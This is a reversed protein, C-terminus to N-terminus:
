PQEPGTAQQRDGRLRENARELNAVLARLVNAYLHLRSERRCVAHRRRSPDTVVDRQQQEREPEHHRDARRDTALASREVEVRLHRVIAHHPVLQPVGERRRLIM